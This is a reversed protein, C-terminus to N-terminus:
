FIRFSRLARLYARLVQVRWDDRSYVAVEIRGDPRSEPSNAELLVLDGVVHSHVIGTPIEPDGTSVHGGPGAFASGALLMGAILVSALAKFERAM